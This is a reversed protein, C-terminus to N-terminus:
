LWVPLLNLVYGINTLNYNNYQSVPKNLHKKNVIQRFLNVLNLYTKGQVLITGM